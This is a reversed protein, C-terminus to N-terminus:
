LLKLNKTLLWKYNMQNQFTITKYALIYGKNPFAYYYKAQSFGTIRLRIKKNAANKFNIVIGLGSGDRTLKELEDTHGKSRRM